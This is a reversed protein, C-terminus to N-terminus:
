PSWAARAPGASRHAAGADCISLRGHDLVLPATRTVARRAVTTAPRHPGAVAAATPDHAALYTSCAVHDATLCLRRQKEAALVAPPTVVTCRHERAPTSARWRGDASLLYPCVAATATSAAPVPATVPSPLVSDTMPALSVRERVGPEAGLPERRFRM